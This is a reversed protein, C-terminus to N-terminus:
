RGVFLTMQTLEKSTLGAEPKQRVVRGPGSPHRTPVALTRCTFRADRCRSHATLEKMGVTNPVTAEPLPRRGLSVTLRVHTGRAVSTRPSPTQTVVTTVPRRSRTPYLNAVFGLDEMRAAAEWYDLGVVRPAPSASPPAPDPPPKRAKFLSVTLVVIKDPGLRQDAEPEQEFVLGDPQFSREQRVKVRYGAEEIVAVAYQAPLGRVDPVFAGTPVPRKKPKARKAPPSRRARTQTQAPSTTPATRRLTTTPAARTTTTPSTATTTAATTTTETRRTSTTTERTTTSTTAAKQRAPRRTTGVRGPATQTPTTTVVAGPSARSGEGESFAAVAIFVATTAAAPGAFWVWKRGM